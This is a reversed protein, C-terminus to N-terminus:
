SRRDALTLGSLDRDRGGTTIGVLYGVVLCVLTGVAAYLLFHISTFFAVGLTALGGVTLGTLAGTANTRRTFVGLLFVGALGGGFLGLVKQFFEFLYKIEYTALVMATGTGVVGLLVTLMRALRLRDRRREEPQFRQVFDHLLATSISNMSSDLSSMAAAFVGAIVLGAVGAPLHTVVFWPVLQDAKEPVFAHEVPHATYYVFLATGLGFFLLGAPVTMAFNLWLGKAAQKEDRTTLYRQIVTQDTTYPVINTFLFGVILVWAVMESTSWRWDFVQLKGAAQATEILPGVGGADHITIVLCLLAGGLLVFVQLV